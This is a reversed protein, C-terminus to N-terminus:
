ESILEIEKLLRDRSNVNNKFWRTVTKVTSPVQLIFLLLNIEPIVVRIVMLLVFATEKNTIKYDKKIFFKNICLLVFLVPVLIDVVEGLKDLISPEYTEYLWSNDYETLSPDNLREAEQQAWKQNRELKYDWKNDKFWLGM